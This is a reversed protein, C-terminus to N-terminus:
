TTIGTHSSRQVLRGPKCLDWKFVWPSHSLPLDITFAMDRDYEQLAAANCTQRSPAWPLPARQLEALVRSLSADSVGGISVLKSLRQRKTSQAMGGPAGQSSCSLLKHFCLHGSVSRIYRQGISYLSKIATGVCLSHM